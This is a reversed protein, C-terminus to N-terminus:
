QFLLVFHAGPAFAEAARALLQLLGHLCHAVRGVLYPLIQACTIAILWRLTRSSMRCAIASDSRAHRTKESPVARMRRGVSAASCRMTLSRFARRGALHKM